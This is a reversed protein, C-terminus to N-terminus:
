MAQINITVNHCQEQRNAREEVGGLSSGLKMYTYLCYINRVRDKASGRPYVSPDGGPSLLTSGM